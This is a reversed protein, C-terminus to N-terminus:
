LCCKNDYVNTCDNEECCTFMPVYTHHIIHHNMIRTNVPIVHQVEHHFERHCCREQPCEYIPPCSPMGMNQQNVCNVNSNMTNNVDQKFNDGMDFCCNRFM